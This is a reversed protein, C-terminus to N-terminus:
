RSFEFRVRSDHSLPRAVSRKKLEQVCEQLPKSDKRGEIRPWPKQGTELAQAALANTESKQALVATTCEQLAPSPPLPSDLAEAGSEGPSSPQSM